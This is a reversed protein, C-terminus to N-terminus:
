YVRVPRAELGLHKRLADLPHAMIGSMISGGLDLPVRDPERFDLAARVRERSTM